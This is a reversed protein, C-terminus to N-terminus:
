ARRRRRAASMATTRPRPLASASGRGRTLARLMCLNSDLSAARPRGRRTGPAFPRNELHPAAKMRFSPAEHPLIGFVAATSSPSRAHLVVAQPSLDGRQAFRVMQRAAIQGVPAPEVEREDLPKLRPLHGRRKRREDLDRAREAHAEAREHVVVLVQAGGVDVAILHGLDLASGAELGGRAAVEAIEAQGRATRRAVHIREDDRHVGRALGVVLEHAVLALFPQEAHLAADLDLVALVDVHQM